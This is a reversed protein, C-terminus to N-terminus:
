APALGPPAPVAACTTVELAGDLRVVQRDDRGAAWTTFSADLRDLAEPADMVYRVRLCTQGGDAPDQVWMTSRDGGWGAAARDGEDRGVVNALLQATLLEGLPPGEIATAEDAVPLDLLAEPERMAYRSVHLVQESTTPPDAFSRDVEAEGGRRAADTVLVEGAVYKADIEPGIIDPYDGDLQEASRGDRRAWEHAVRQADGEVVAEFGLVVETTPDAVDPRDFPSLQDDLAHTLEHVLVEREDGDVETGPTGRLITVDRGTDYFAATDQVSVDIYNRVYADIDEVLGLLRLWAGRQKLADRDYMSRALDEFADDELRMASPEVVFAHGRVEAVFSSLEVVAAELPADPTAPPLVVPPDLANAASTTVPRVTTTTAAPTARPDSDHSRAVVLLTGTLLTVIVVAAIIAQRPGSGPSPPNAVPETTPDPRLRRGSWPRLVWETPPSAPLGELGPWSRPDGDAVATDARRGVVPESGEEHVEASPDDDVEAGEDGM